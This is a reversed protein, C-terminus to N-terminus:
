KRDGKYNNSALLFLLSIKREGFLRAFHTTKNLIFLGLALPRSIIMYIQFMNFCIKSTPAPPATPLIKRKRVENKIVLDSGHGKGTAVNKTFISPQKQMPNNAFRIGELLKRKKIIVPKQPPNVVKEVKALSFM